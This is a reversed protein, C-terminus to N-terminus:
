VSLKDQLYKRAEQFDINLINEIEGALIREADHLFNEDCMHVKRGVSNQHERHRYLTYIARTLRMRDCCSILERYLQKRCNEDQIWLVDRVGSSDLLAELAERSMLPSLKAMAAENGTPIFYRTTPGTVPELVLDVCRKRDVLREETGSIRCVGHAGYVVRDGIGYM